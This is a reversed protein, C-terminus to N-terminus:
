SPLSAPPARASRSGPPATRPLVVRPRAITGAPAAAEVAAPAGSGPPAALRAAACAACPSDGCAGPDHHHGHEHCDGPCGSRVVSSPSPGRGAEAVLVLAELLAGRAEEARHSPLLGLFAVLYAALLALAVPRRTGASM